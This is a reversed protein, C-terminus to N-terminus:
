PAVDAVAQGAPKIDFTPDLSIEWHLSGGQGAPDYEAVPEM